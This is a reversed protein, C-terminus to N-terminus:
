ECQITTNSRNLKHGSKISKLKTTGNYTIAVDNCANLPHFPVSPCESEPANTLTIESQFDKTKRNPNIASEKLRLAGIEGSFNRTHGDTEVIKGADQFNKNHSSNFLSTVGSTIKSTLNTSSGNIKKRDEDDEDLIVKLPVGRLSNQRKNLEQLAERRSDEEMFGMSTFSKKLMGSKNLRNQFGDAKGHKSSRLEALELNSIIRRIDGPISIDKHHEVTDSIFEGLAAVTLELSRIQTELRNIVSQQTTRTKELLSSNKNVIELQELLALNQDTLRKNELELKKIEGLKPRPSSMEEQLVNYEVEYERLRKSIDMTLVRKMVKEVHESSMKPIENKLYNMIEEFTSISLLSEMHEELLALIVRFVVDTAHELFVLDFVRTVFGLPFQSAFVTLMWPAAYLTPAVENKDFHAYLKPLTDYLLRTLQYLQVQLAAMDPLYQKRIGRRFMLHRLLLFAAEESMHLLLVGAIFSLGQCYGVQPDLLSYAKLINFLALQGPGLPSSFYPHNPFTRGLDILIAHQFSTLQKLLDEYPVDYNPYGTSDFPPQKLCYQVALFHWVDGRKAPPVGQRIAQLLMQNDCKSSIVRSDKSSILDWIGTYEKSASGLEDYELKIRKVTAEEQRARLRANEKEMRILLLQQNIAKKWLDRLDEKTRIRTMKADSQDMKGPTVVRNFIAQRWSGPPTENMENPFFKDNDPSKTTSGVKLFINMMPTKPSECDAEDEVEANTKQLNKEIKQNNVTIAAIDHFSPKKGQNKRDSDVSTEEQFHNKLQEIESPSYQRKNDKKGNESGSSRGGDSGEDNQSNSKKILEKLQSNHSQIDLQSGKRKLLQDFSSTLSRKAKMFITSGGLYQHLFESRNEATDHVHRTQKTECHTRLLIMLFENQEKINSSETGLFKTQIVEQEEAPLTEIRRLIVTLTKKDNLGEVDACLKHFWAMPCHECSLPPQKMEKADKTSLFSQTIVSVIDDAVSGCECKFLYGIYCEDERSIFGFHENHRLGQVCGVIDKLNKHFLIKKRDPSILCLDVKGVYFLMTRNHNSDDTKKRFTEIVGLSGSRARRFGMEHNARRIDDESVTPALGEAPTESDSFNKVNNIDCINQNRLINMCKEHGIKAHIDDHSFSQKLRKREKVDDVKGASPKIEGDEIKACPELSVSKCFENENESNKKTKKLQLKIKELADDIFTDPVNRHSVKLRGVYLVEFFQSNSPSLDRCLSTLSAASSHSKTPTQWQSGERTSEKMTQLIEMVSSKSKRIRPHNCGGSVSVSM